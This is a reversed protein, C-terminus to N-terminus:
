CASLNITSLGLTVLLVTHSLANLLAHVAPILGTHSNSHHARILTLPTLHLLLWHTPPLRTLHPHHQVVDPSTGVIPALEHGTCPRIILTMHFCCSFFICMGKQRHSQHTAASATGWLNVSVWRCLHRKNPPVEQEGAPLVATSLM